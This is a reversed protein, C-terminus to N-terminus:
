VRAATVCAIGAVILAIGMWHFGVIREGLYLGGALCTAIATAGIVVPYAFTLNARGLLFIYLLTSVGYAAIGGGLWANLLNRGAGLKLLAQAITNLVVIAVMLLWLASGGQM